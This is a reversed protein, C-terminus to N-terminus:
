SGRTLRLKPAPGNLPVNAKEPSGSGNQLANAEHPAVPVSESETGRSVPVQTTVAERNTLLSTLARPATSSRLRPRSGSAPPGSTVNPM